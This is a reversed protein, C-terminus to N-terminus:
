TGNGNESPSCPDRPYLLRLKRELNRRAMALCLIQHRKKFGISENGAGRHLFIGSVESGTGPTPNIYGNYGVGDM